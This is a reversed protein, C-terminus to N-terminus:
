LFDGHRAYFEIAAATVGAEAIAVGAEVVESPPDVDGGPPTDRAGAGETPRTAM